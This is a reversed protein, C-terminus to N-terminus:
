TYLLTLVSFKFDSPDSGDDCLNSIQLNCTMGQLYTNEVGEFEATFDLEYGMRPEGRVVAISAEGSIDSIKM